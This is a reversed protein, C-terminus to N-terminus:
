IFYQFVFPAAAIVATSLTIAPLLFKSYGSPAPPVVEEQEVARPQEIEVQEEEESADEEDSSADSSSASSGKRKKRNEKQRQRRAMKRAKAEQKRKEEEEKELLKRKLEEAEAAEKQLRQVEEEKQQALVLLRQEEAKREQEALVSPDPQPVVAVPVQSTKDCPVPNTFWQQSSLASREFGPPPRVFGQRHTRRVTAKAAYTKHPRFIVKLSGPIQEEYILRKFRNFDEKDHQPTWVIPTWVSITTGYEPRFAFTCGNVRASLHSDCMVKVAVKLFAEFGSAPDREEPLCILLKGGDRNANDEWLPRINDKFLYIRLPINGKGFSKVQNLFQGYNRFTENKELTDLWEESSLADRHEADLEDHHWFTWHDSLELHSMLAKQTESLQHTAKKRAKSEESAAVALMDTQSVHVHQDDRPIGSDDSALV